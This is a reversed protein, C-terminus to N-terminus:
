CELQNLASEIKSSSPSQLCSVILKKLNDDIASCCVENILDAAKQFNFIDFGGIQALTTGLCIWDLHETATITDADLCYSETFEIIPSGIRVTAGYDVLTTYSPESNHLMINSPKLDAFCFRKSHLHCLADFCSRAIIKVATLPLASDQILWDAVSRPFHPMIIVHRAEDQISFTKVFKVLNKHELVQNTEVERLFSEKNGNYVKAVFVVGSESFAYYMQGQGGNLSGDLFFSHQQGIAKRTASKIKSKAFTLITRAEEPTLHPSKLLSYKATDNNLLYNIDRISFEVCLQRLKDPVSTYQLNSADSAQVAVILAEKKSKGFDLIPADEQMPKGELNEETSALVDPDNRKDFASKNKYVLLAGSPIDKHYNPKDYKIQVADRFQDVVPVVLSSRLISSVSTGKYPLGSASDLLLFWVLRSPYSMSSQQQQPNSSM